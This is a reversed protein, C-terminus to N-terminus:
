DGMRPALKLVIKEAKQGVGAARKLYDSNQLRIAQCINHPEDLSCISLACKPGVGDVDLLHEFLEREDQDWFGYLKTPAKETVHEYAFVHCVPREPKQVVDIFRKISRSSCFVEYGIHDTAVVMRHPGAKGVKGIPIEIDGCIHDIM